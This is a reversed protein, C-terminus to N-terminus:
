KLSIVSVTTAGQNTVFAESSDSTIAIENPNVGVAVTAVVQDSSTAVVAVTDALFNTVLAYQGNPTISVTYAAPDGTNVVTVTNGTSLDIIWLGGPGGSFNALTAYAFHGDPSVAVANPFATDYGSITFTNVIEKSIPNIVDITPPGSAPAVPVLVDGILTPVITNIPIVAPRGSLGAVPINTEISVDLPGNKLVPLLNFDGQTTVFIQANALGVVIGYPFNDPVESLDVTQTVKRTSVNAVSVSASSSNTIFARKGLRGFAIDEPFEQVTLKNADETLTPVDIFTVQNGNENVTGSNTVWVTKGDPSLTAGFPNVDVNITKIVQFPNAQQAQAVGGWITTVIACAALCSIAICRAPRRSHIIRTPIISMMSM